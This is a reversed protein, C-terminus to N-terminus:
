ARKGYKLVFNMLEDPTEFKMEEEM